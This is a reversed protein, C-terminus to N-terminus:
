REGNFFSFSQAKVMGNQLTPKAICSDGEGYCGGEQIQRAIGMMSHYVHESM